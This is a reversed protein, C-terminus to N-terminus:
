ISGLIGEWCMSWSFEWSREQVAIRASEESGIEILKMLGLEIEQLSKPDCQVGTECVLEPLSSVNSVLVPCRCAMAEVVPLGFGEFLSIYCFGHALTYIAPLHDERIFGTFHVQNVCSDPINFEKWKWGKKGALVLHYEERVQRPLNSYAVILRALNKRPELTSVSLLFKQKPLQYREKVLALLHQNHIPYFVKRDVGEYVLKSSLGDELLDSQTSKSVAILEANQEKCFQMGLETRAVNNAEHFQPYHKHTLDHVITVLRQFQASSLYEFNQPLTLLAVDHNMAETEFENTTKRRLLKQVKALPFETALKNYAASPLVAKLTNKLVYLVGSEISQHGLGEQALAQDVTMEQYGISATVNLGHCPFQQATKLLEFVYRKIGDFHEDKLKNAEILLSKQASEAKKLKGCKIQFNRSLHSLEFKHEGESTYGFVEMAEGHLHWFLRQQAETMETKWANIKGQRFWFQSLDKGIASGTGYAANGAKLDEFNPLNNIDPVPLNLLERLREVQVIPERILDEFRIIIDARNVWTKTHNSWGSFHSGEAAYIAEQLNQDFDSGPNIVDSRHHALSVTADRGDRILYVIPRNLLSEPLQHPLLHTKVVSSQEWGQDPGHAENHFTKSEIGYVKHLVNRLFTNGSRPYSVLSIM